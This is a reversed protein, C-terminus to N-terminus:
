RPACPNGAAEDLEKSLARRTAQAKPPSLTPPERPRKTPPTQLISDKGKSKHRCLAKLEEKSM